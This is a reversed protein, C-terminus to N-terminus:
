SVPLDIGSRRQDLGSTSSIRISDPISRASIGFPDTASCNLELERVFVCRKNTGM